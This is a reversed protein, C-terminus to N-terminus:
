MTSGIVRWNMAEMLRNALSLLIGRITNWFPCALVVKGFLLALLEVLGFRHPEDAFRLLFTRNIAGLFTVVRLCFASIGPDHLRGGQHIMVVEVADILVEPGEEELETGIEGVVSLETEVSM